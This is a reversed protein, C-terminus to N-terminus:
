RVHVFTHTYGEGGRVFWRIVYAANPDNITTSYKYIHVYMDCGAGECAPVCFDFKTDSRERKRRSERKCEQRVRWVSARM